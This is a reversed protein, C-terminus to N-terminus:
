PLLHHMAQHYCRDFDLILERMSVTIQEEGQTGAEHPVCYKRSEAQFGDQETMMRRGEEFAIVGTKSLRKMAKSISVRSIGIAKSMDEMSMRPRLMRCRLLLLFLLRRCTRNPQELVMRM